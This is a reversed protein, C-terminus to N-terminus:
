FLMGCLWSMRWIWANLSFIIHLAVYAVPLKAPPAWFKIHRQFLNLNMEFAGPPPAPIEVCLNQVYREIPATMLDTTTAFRYLQTLYERFALLYPWASLICLVRPVYLAGGIPDFTIEIDIGDSSHVTHRRSYPDNEAPFYEEHVTLCTGYIKRGKDNTLVFYHIRPMVYSTSPVISDSHPYCFQTIMQNLPNDTYDTQPYRATIRPCFTYEKSQHQPLHINGGISEDRSETAAKTPSHSRADTWRPYSSVVVFYEVLRQQVVATVELATSDAVKRRIKASVASRPPRPPANNLLSNPPPSGHCKGSPSM